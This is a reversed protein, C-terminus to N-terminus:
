RDLLSPKGRHQACREGPLVLRRCPAGKKTRAGCMVRERSAPPKLTLPGVAANQASIAPPAPISVTTQRDNLSLGLLLVCIWALPILRGRRNLRAACDACFYRPGWGSGPEM